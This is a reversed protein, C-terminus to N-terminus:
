STKNASDDSQDASFRVSASYSAFAGLASATAHSNRPTVVGVDRWTKANPYQTKVATLLSIDAGQAPGNKPELTKPYLQIQKGVHSPPSLFEVRVTVKRTNAESIATTHTAAANQLSSKGYGHLVRNFGRHAARERLPQSSKCTREQNRIQKHLTSIEMDKSALEKNREALDAKHEELETTTQELNGEIRPERSKM